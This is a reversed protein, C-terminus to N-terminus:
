VKVLNVFMSSKFTKVVYWLEDILKLEVFPRGYCIEFSKRERDRERERERESEGM